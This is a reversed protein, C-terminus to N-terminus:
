PLRAEMYLLLERAICCIFDAHPSLLLLLLESRICYLWGDGLGGIIGGGGICEGDCPPILM